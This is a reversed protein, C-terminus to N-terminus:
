GQKKRKSNGRMNLIDTLVIFLRFTSINSSFIHSKCCDSDNVKCKLFEAHLLWSQFLDCDSSSLIILRVNGIAMPVMQGRFFYTIDSSIAMIPFYWWGFIINHDIQRVKLERVGM